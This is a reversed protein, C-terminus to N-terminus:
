IVLTDRIEGLRRGTVSTPVIQLWVNHIGVAWPLPPHGNMRHLLEPVHDLDVEEGPGRVIVSWGSRKTVELHDVEFALVPQEVARRRSRGEIRFVINEGALSYNVPVAIPGMDDTYVLRGVPEQALLAYCEERTLDEIQREAV